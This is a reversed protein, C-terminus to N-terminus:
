ARSITQRAEPVGPIAGVTPMEAAPVEAAPVEAVLTRVAGAAGTTRTELAEAEGQPVGTGSNGFGRTEATELLDLL